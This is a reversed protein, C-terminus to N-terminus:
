GAREEPAGVCLYKVEMYEDLGYKSGERGLGSAKVGGFPAAADSILGTNIGVMGTEMAAAVRRVRDISQSYLYGALGFQTDNALAIAEDETEFRLIGAVPGFTEEKWLRMDPTIGSLVTPSAWNGGSPHPEGGRVVTAGRERADQIHAMVKDVAASNILPSLDVDPELGNGLKLAGVASSLRAVFADHVRDQVLFRNVCVCTQGSNRFKAAVAGAVASDLDADDFVIFPANGGLELSIKQIHEAAQVMLARGTATSGTFSLKRVKPNATLEAGIEDAKGTVVNFVGPPVGAREALEALALASHPTASAPKAVLTCGAALAAGAKRTIMSSPFNWPTIAAAVGCPQKIVFIHEGPHAAPITDGYARRAEEAFWRLFSAAYAIEGKSEALPKGQELTMLRGLDDQHELLLRYWAYLVDARELATRRRWQEFASHAADIARRTEQAGMAPVTGLHEGTAPNHVALTASGDAQVWAGNIYAATKFLTPDNLKATLM